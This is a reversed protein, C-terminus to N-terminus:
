DKRAAAAQSISSANTTSQGQLKIMANILSRNGAAYGIRWGTMAYSKSLGNVTLVRDKLDPPVQALTVFSENDYIIKSYIDDCIVNIYPYDRLVKAM